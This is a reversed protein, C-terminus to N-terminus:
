LYKLIELEAITDVGNALQMPQICYPPCPRSTLAFDLEIINGTDAIRKIRVTKGNHKVDVYPLNATINVAQNEAAFASLFIGSFVFLVALNVRLRQTLSHYLM